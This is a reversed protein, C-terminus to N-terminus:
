SRDDLALLATDTGALQLYQAVAKALASKGSGPLGTFWLTASM